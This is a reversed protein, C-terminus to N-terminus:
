KMCSILFRIGEVFGCYFLEKEVESYIRNLEEEITLYENGSIVSSLKTYLRKQALEVEVSKRQQINNYIADTIYREM